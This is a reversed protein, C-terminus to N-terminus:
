KNKKKWIHQDKKGEGVHMCNQDTIHQVKKM